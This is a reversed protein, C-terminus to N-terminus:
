KESLVNYYIALFDNLDVAVEKMVSVLQKEIARNLAGTIQANFTSSLKNLLDAENMQPSFEIVLGSVRCKQENPGSFSFKDETKESKLSIVLSFQNVKAQFSGKRHLSIFLSDEQYEFDSQLQLVIDRISVSSLVLVKAASFFKEPHNFEMETTSRLRICDPLKPIHLLLSSLKLNTKSFANDVLPIDIPELQFDRILNQFTPLLLNQALQDLFALPSDKIPSFLSLDTLDLQHFLHKFLPKEILADLKELLPKTFKAVGTRITEKCTFGQLLNQVSDQVTMRKEDSTSDEKLEELKKSLEELVGRVMPDRLADIPSFEEPVIEGNGKIEEDRTEMSSLVYHILYNVALVNLPTQLIDSFHNGKFLQQLKENYETENFLDASLTSLTAYLLSRLEASM